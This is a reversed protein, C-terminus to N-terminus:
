DFSKRLSIRVNQYTNDDRRELYALDTLGRLGSYVERVNWAGRRSLNNLELRLTM